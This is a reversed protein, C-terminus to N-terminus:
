EVRTFVLSYEPNAPLSVDAQMELSLTNGECRYSGVLGPQPLMSFESTTFPIAAGLVEASISIEGEALDSLEAVGLSGNNWFTYQFGTRAGNMSIKMPLGTMSYNMQYDYIDYSGWYTVGDDSRSAETLRLLFSGESGEYKLDDESMNMSAIMRQEFGVTLEWQAELDCVQALSVALVLGVLLTVIKKM